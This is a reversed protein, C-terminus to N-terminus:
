SRRPVEAGKVGTQHRAANERLFKSTDDGELTGRRLLEEALAKVLYWHEQLIEAARTKLREVHAEVEPESVTFYQAVYRANKQDKQDGCRYDGHGSRKYRRVAIGGALSIMIEIDRNQEIAAVSPTWSPLNDRYMFEEWDEHEWADTRGLSLSEHVVHGLSEADPVITVRKVSVGCLWLMVAHGAEHYAIADLEMDMNKTKLTRCDSGSAADVAVIVESKFRTLV